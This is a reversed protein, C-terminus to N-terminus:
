RDQIPRIVGAEEEFYSRTVAWEIKDRVQARTDNTKRTYGFLDLLVSALEDIEVEFAGRVIPTAANALEQPSIQDVKREPFSSEWYWDFASAIVEGRSVCKGPFLWSGFPTNVQRDEPAFSRLQEMRAARVRDLGFSQAMAKLGEEVTFPGREDALRGLVDHILDGAYELEGPSGFYGQIGLPRYPLARIGSADAASTGRQPSGWPASNPSIPRDVDSGPAPWDPVPSDGLAPIVTRPVEVLSEDAPERKPLSEGSALMTALNGIEAVVQEPERRWTPLWVRAVAPWGMLDRLVTLPLADRDLVLSRHSWESGDLLVGILWRSEMGPLTVALDVKFSSLGYHRRVVLGSEELALAVEDVYPDSDSSVSQDFADRDSGAARALLLYDRLDQLAQANSRSLDEPDFSSYVIVQRRARTVAVNLRREGRKKVLPGFNLPMPQNPDQRSFSTGFIIVDRERGQVNELNLVMLREEPDESDLLSNVADDNLEELMAAILKRQSDNLTVVGMTFQSLHPHNARRQVDKVIAEAEIPNTHMLGKGASHSRHFLGNVRHYEFGCDPQSVVPAPFSSLRGGYYHSNSFAILVEDRSRYHWELMERPLGSEVCEELISEEDAPVVDIEDTTSDSQDDENSSSTSFASSPPMQKSDGVVVVSTARGMAGISDEVRIQSAEDFVILDFKILGPVLFKAVSDTSMLFCPALEPILEPYKTLLDRVSKAGRRKANLEARLKGVAGVASSADFSRREYLYAPIVARLADQRTELLGVFRDVTRDQNASDFVDFQYEEGVVTLTAHLLAREFAESAETGPIEGRLVQQRFAPFPETELPALFNLLDIWRRLTVFALGDTAQVWTSITQDLSAVVTRGNLWNETTEPTAQCIAFIQDLGDPIADFAHTSPPREFGALASQTATAFESAETLCTAAGELSTIRVQVSTAPFNDVEAETLIAGSGELGRLTEVGEKYRRSADALQEFTAQVQAPAGAFCPLAAFGALASQIRGKRGMFFSSCAQQVDHAQAALDQCLASADLSPDLSSADDLAQLCLGAASQATSIWDGRSISRWQGADLTVGMEDLHSLTSVARIQELTTAASISAGWNGERPIGSLAQQVKQIATALADRDIEGFDRANTFAWPHEASPQAANTFSPLELLHTRFDRLVDQNTGVVTRGISAEPGVGLTRLQRYAGFYSTGADTNGHLRDRYLGLAQSYVRFAEQTKEWEELEAEPGFDLATRLQEKIVDPRSGGDHLNLCFPDLGVATLREQVVALAAAKEAVFLVRKGEALANALLNTITQSKGTGPPGELVFSQGALARVIARTQAGDAPQPNLLTTDDFDPAGQGKPDVPDTFAGSGGRILHKVVTNEAFEEWHEDLDKWLRVRDFAFIGLAVTDDVSVGKETLGLELAESRLQQMGAEVDLGSDDTMDHNFWDLKMQYRNRLAELLCHNVSTMSNPDLKLTPVKQGRKLHMRVPVLFVPSTVINLQSNTSSAHAWTVSGLALYLNNVGTDQELQTARTNLQRAQAIVTRKNHFGWLVRNKEWDESVQDGTLQAVATIGGKQFVSNIQENGHISLAQGDAAADEIKGLSNAPVLLQVGMSEARFSILPNRRSLDLLSNKWQQVRAPVTKPLLKETVPDRREVIPAASPGQDIVVILGEDTRHRAPIARVGARRAALVDLAGELHREVHPPAGAEILAQCTKCKLDREALDSTARQMSSEFPTDSAIDTTEIVRILGQQAYATMVTEYTETLPDPWRYGDRSPKTFYGAFAHGHVFFIIPDINATLLASAYACALEICNGQRMEFVEDLPRVRQGEKDFSPPSMLYNDVRKSLAEYLAKAQKDVGDPEAQYGVLGVGQSDSIRAADLTVEKLAPHGPQVFAATLELLHPDWQNRALILIEFDRSEEYGNADRVTIIVVAPAPEDLQALAQDNLRTQLGVQVISDELEPCKATFEFEKLPAYQNATWSSSITITLPGEVGGGVNRVTVSDVPAMRNYAMAYIVRDCVSAEIEFHQGNPSAAAPAFDGLSLTADNAPSGSSGM